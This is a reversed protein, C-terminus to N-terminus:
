KGFLSYVSDMRGSIEEISRHLVEELYEGANSMLDYRKTVYDHTRALAKTCGEFQGFTVLRDSIVKVRKNLEPNNKRLLDHLEVDLLNEEVEHLFNDLNREESLKYDVAIELAWHYLDAKFRFSLGDHGKALYRKADNFWSQSHFKQNQSIHEQIGKRISDNGFYEKRRKRDMSPYLLGFTYFSDYLKPAFYLHGLYNM